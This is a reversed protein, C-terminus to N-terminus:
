VRYESTDDDAPMDRRQNIGYGAVPQKMGGRRSSRETPGSFALASNPRVLMGGKADNFERNGAPVTALSSPMQFVTRQAAARQHSNAFHSSSPHRSRGDERFSATAPGAAMVRTEPYKMDSPLVVPDLGATRSVLRGSPSRVPMHLRAPSSQGSADATFLATQQQQQQHHYYHHYHQQSHLQLDDYAAVALTPPPARTHLRDLTSSRSSDRGAAPMPKNMFQGQDNNAALTQVMHLQVLM